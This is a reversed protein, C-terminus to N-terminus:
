DHKTRLRALAIRAHLCAAVFVLPAHITFIRSALWRPLYIDTVTGHAAGLEVALGTLPCRRGNGFYIISEAAIAAAATATKRDQRKTLGTYIVYVVCFELTFYILSHLIKVATLAV